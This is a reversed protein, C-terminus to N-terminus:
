KHNIRVTTEYPHKLKYEKIADLINDDDFTYNIKLSIDFFEKLSNIYGELLGEKKIEKLFSIIENYRVKKIRTKFNIFNYFVQNDYFIPCNVGNVYLENNIKEVRKGTLDFAMGLIFEEAKHGILLPSTIKIIIKQYEEPINYKEFIEKASIIKDESYINFWDNCDAVRKHTFTKKNIENAEVMLYKAKEDKM